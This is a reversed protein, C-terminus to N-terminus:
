CCRWFRTLVSTAALSTRSATKKRDVSEALRSKIGAVPPGPPALTCAAARPTRRKDYPFCYPGNAVRAGQPELVRRYAMRLPMPHDKRIDLQLPNVTKGGLLHPRVRQQVRHAVRQRQEEHGLRVLGVGEEGVGQLHRLAWGSGFIVLIIVKVRM